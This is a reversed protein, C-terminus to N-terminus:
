LTLALNSETTQEGQTIANPQVCRLRANVISPSSASIPCAMRYLALNCDSSVNRNPVDRRVIAVFASAPPNFFFPTGLNFHSAPYMLLFPKYRFLNGLSRPDILINLDEHPIPIPLPAVRPTTFVLTPIQRRRKKPSSEEM